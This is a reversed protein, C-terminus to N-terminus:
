SGHACNYILIIVAIDSILLLFGLVIEALTYSIVIQKHRTGRVEERSHKQFKIMKTEKSWFVAPVCM